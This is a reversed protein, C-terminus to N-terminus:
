RFNVLLKARFTGIKKIDNDKGTISKYYENLKKYAKENTDKLNVSNKLDRLEERRLYKQANLYYPKLNDAM